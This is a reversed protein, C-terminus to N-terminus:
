LHYIGEMDPGRSGEFEGKDGGGWGPRGEKRGEGLRHCIEIEPKTSNSILRRTLTQLKTYRNNHELNIHSKERMFADSGERFIARSGLQGM